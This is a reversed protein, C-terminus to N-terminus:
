IDDAEDEEEIDKVLDNVDKTAKKLKDVNNEKVVKPKSTSKTPESAFCIRPMLASTSQIEQELSGM